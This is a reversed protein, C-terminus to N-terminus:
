FIGLSFLAAGLGMAALGFILRPDAKSRPRVQQRAGPTTASARM